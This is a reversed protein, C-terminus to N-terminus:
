RGAVELIGPQVLERVNSEVVEARTQVNPRIAISRLEGDLVEVLEDVIDAHYLTLVVQLESSFVAPINRGLLEGLALAAVILVVRRLNVQFVKGWVKEPLAASTRARVIAVLIRNVPVRVIGPTRGLM